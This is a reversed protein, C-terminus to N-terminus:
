KPNGMGASIFSKQRVGFLWPPMCLRDAPSPTSTSTPDPLPGCRGPPRSFASASGSLFAGLDSSGRLATIEAARASRLLRKGRLESCYKQCLLVKESSGRLATSKPSWHFLDEEWKTWVREVKEARGGSDAPGREFGVEVVVGAGPSLNHVRGLLM